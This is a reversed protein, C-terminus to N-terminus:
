LNPPLRSKAWLGYNAVQQGITDNTGEYVLNPKM